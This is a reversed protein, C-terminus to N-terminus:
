PNLGNESLGMHISPHNIHVFIKLKWGDATEGDERRFGGQSASVEIGLQPYGPSVM